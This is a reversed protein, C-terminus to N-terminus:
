PNPGRPFAETWLGIGMVLFAVALAVCALAAILTAIESGQSRRHKFGWFAGGATILFGFEGIFLRTLLPMGRAAQTDMEGGPTGVPGGGLALVLALVLGLGAAAWTFPFRKSM